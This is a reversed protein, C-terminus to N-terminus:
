RCVHKSQTPKELSDVKIEVIIKTVEEVIGVQASPTGYVVTIFGHSNHITFALSTKKKKILTTNVISSSREDGM